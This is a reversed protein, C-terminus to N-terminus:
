NPGRENGGIYYPIVDLFAHGIITFGIQTWGFINLPNEPPPPISVYNFTGKWRTDSILKGTAGDFVLERGDPHLMKWERIHDVDNQHYIDTLTRYWGDRALCQELTRPNNINRNKADREEYHWKTLRNYNKKLLENLKNEVPRNEGPITLLGPLVKTLLESAGPKTTFPYLNKDQLINQKYDTLYILTPSLLIPLNYNKIDPSTSYQNLQHNISRNAGAAKNIVTTDLFASANFFLSKLTSTNLFSHAPGFGTTEQAGLSTFVLFLILYILAFKKKHYM